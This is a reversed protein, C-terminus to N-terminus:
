KLGLFNRIAPVRRFIFYESLNVAILSIGLLPLLTGFMIIIAILWLSFKPYTSVKPAGIVGDPKRKWWMIIASISMTILSLATFLGLLQNPWGFLQGEHAAVGTGIIRDLLPRESFDKRSIIKGNDDLTLTARLPRNQADSRAIWHEIKANPPSILVPPALDLSKITPILKDIVDYNVVMNGTTNNTQHAMHEAHSTTWDQKVVTTTGLSRLEKLMGGWSKAWPLGSLLLFLAFFSVWMGTVAHMDRWFQRKGSKMRPYVVGAFGKANRPWWLYLGTMILVIAWSAALEVIMSGRDGMMLEGHLRFIISMFRDDEPVTKLIQLSEPHVYVRYTNDTNKVIIQVASNQSEPLEYSDLFSDPVSALAAKIQAGATSAGSSINLNYYPKDILAEIQPKFLYISGTCALWLIFPVCFLGAYFHWRWLLRYWIKNSTIENQETM